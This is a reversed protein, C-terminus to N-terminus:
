VVHLLVVKLVAKLALDKTYSREKIIDLGCKSGYRTFGRQCYNTSGHNSSQEDFQFLM